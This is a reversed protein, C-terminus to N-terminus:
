CTISYSDHSVLPPLLNYPNHDNTEHAKLAFDYHPHNHHHKKERRCQYHVIHYMLISHISSYHVKPQNHQSYIYPSQLFTIPKSSCPSITQSMGGHSFHQALTLLFGQLIHKVGLPYVFHSLYYLLPAPAMYLPSICRSTLIVILIPRM